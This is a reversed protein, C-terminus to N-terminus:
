VAGRVCCGALWKLGDRWFSSSLTSKLLGSTDGERVVFAWILFHCFMFIDLESIFVKHAWIELELSPTSSLPGGLLLDQRRLWSAERRSRRKRVQSSLRPGRESVGLQGGM